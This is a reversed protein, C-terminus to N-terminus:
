EDIVPPINSVVNQKRGHWIKLLGLIDNDSAREKTYYLEAGFAWAINNNDTFLEITPSRPVVFPIPFDVDEKFTSNRNTFASIAGNVFSFHGRALVDFDEDRTFLLGLDQELETIENKQILAWDLRGAQDATNPIVKTRIKHIKVIENSALGIKFPLMRSTSIVSWTQLISVKKVQLSKYM